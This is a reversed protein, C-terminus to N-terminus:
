RDAADLPHGHPHEAYDELLRDYFLQRAMSDLGLYPEDFFTLPARSALQSSSESPPSSDAPSSGSTAFDQGTPLQMLTTKGAGNRGLLGCIKDEEVTFSM